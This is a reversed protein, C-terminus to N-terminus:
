YYIWQSDVKDSDITTLYYYTPVSTNVTIFYYSKGNVIAVQNIYLSYEQPTKKDLCAVNDYQDISCNVDRNESVKSPISTVIKKLNKDAIPLFTSNEYQNALALVNSNDTIKKILLCTRKRTLLISRDSNAINLTERLDHMLLDNCNKITINKDLYDIDKFEGDIFKDIFILQDNHKIPKVFGATLNDLNYIPHNDLKYSDLNLFLDHEPSASSNADSINDSQVKMCGSAFIFLCLSSFLILFNKM